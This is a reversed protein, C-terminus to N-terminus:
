RSFLQLYADVHQKDYCVSIVLKEATNIDIVKLSRLGGFYPTKTNQKRSKRSHHVTVACKLPSKRRFQQLYVLVIHSYFGSLSDRTKKWIV